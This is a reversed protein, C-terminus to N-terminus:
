SYSEAAPNNAGAIVIKTTRGARQDHGETVRLVDTEIWKQVMMKVRAKGSANSLDMGLVAAVVTGVWGSSRVDLRPPEAMRDIENRVRAADQATVGAFADPWQWPKIAGVQHGNPTLVSVKEFWRNVDSSPPALNSEMDGIRMFHRHNPVGAKVAEDETMGILLRNFRATGRLASGGRGDDITPTVGPAIKRTHHILGLAVATSSAMRRLRQGLLRFVENTEPSRSLDQLPDFILADARQEAIFKELGVFLPENIVGEQGAIMYFDGRDVGSVPFLTESIESQDIGYLTLLAAVRSDIVDQDDEANYYVVRMPDRTKGSLFGRGTAMDLAEALGLMSKGVKPPALTVSTYGRAYFDAYLFQPHPIAALDRHGWPKFMIPEVAAREADTMEAFPNLEQNKIPATQPRHKKAMEALDAGNQKALHFISRYSVGKGVEFSRWKAEVERPNFRGDQSSWDKAVDLGRVSGDFFDHIAMLGALWGADHGLSPPVHSLADLFHAETPREDTAITSGRFEGLDIITARPRDAWRSLRDSCWDRFDEAASREIEPLSDQPTAWLEGRTWRYPRQTVPHRGYAVFQRTVTRVDVQATLDGRTFKDTQRIRWGPEDLRMVLMTKPDEGIRELAAPFRRLGEDALEAAVEPDYVDLDFCAVNVHLIGVLAASTFHQPIEAETLRLNQWGSITPGKSGAEIPVPYYGLSALRAALEIIDKPKALEQMPMM